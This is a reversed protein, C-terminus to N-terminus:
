KYTCFSICSFWQRNFKIIKTGIFIYSNKKYEVLIFFLGNYVSYKKQLKKLLYKNTRIKKSSQVYLFVIWESNINNVVM